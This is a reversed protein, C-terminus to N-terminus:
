YPGGSGSLWIYPNKFQGLIWKLDTLPDVHDAHRLSWETMTQLQQRLEESLEQHQCATKVVVACDRILRREEWQQSLKRVTERWTSHAVRSMPSLEYRVCLNCKERKPSPTIGHFCHETMSSLAATQPEGALRNTSPPVTCAIQADIAASRHETDRCCFPMRAFWLRTYQTYRSLAM